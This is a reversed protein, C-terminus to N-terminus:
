SLGAPRRNKKQGSILEIWKRKTRDDFNWNWYQHPKEYPDCIILNKIGAM